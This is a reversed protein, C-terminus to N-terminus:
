RTCQPKAMQRKVFLIWSEDVDALRVADPAFALVAPAGADALVVALNSSLQTSCDVTV